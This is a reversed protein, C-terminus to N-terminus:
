TESKGRAATGRLSRRSRRIGWGAGPWSPKPAAAAAAQAAAPLACPKRTRAPDQADAARMRRNRRPPPPSKAPIPPKPFQRRCGEQMRGLETVKASRRIYCSGIPPRLSPRLSLPFPLPPPRVFPPDRSHPHPSLCGRPFQRIGRGEERIDNARQFDEAPVPLPLTKTGGGEKRAAAGEKHRSVGM